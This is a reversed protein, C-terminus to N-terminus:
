HLIQVQFKQDPNQQPEIAEEEPPQPLAELLWGPLIWFQGLVAAMDKPDALPNSIRYTTPYPHSTVEGAKVADLVLELVRQADPGQVKRAEPDWEFNLDAQHWVSSKLALKRYM